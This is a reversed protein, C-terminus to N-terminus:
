KTEPTNSYNVYLTNNTHSTHINGLVNDGFLFLEAVQERLHFSLNMIKHVPFLFFVLFTPVRKSGLTFLEEEEEEEDLEWM